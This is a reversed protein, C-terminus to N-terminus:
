RVFLNFTDVYLSAATEGLILLEIVHQHRKSSSEAARSTNYARFRAFVFLMACSTCAGYFTEMMIHEIVCQMLSLMTDSVLSQVPVLEHTFSDRTGIFYYPWPFLGANAREAPTAAAATAVALVLLSAADTLDVESLQQKVLDAISSASVASPVLEPRTDKQQLWQPHQWQTIPQM